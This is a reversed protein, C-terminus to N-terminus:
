PNKSEYLESMTDAHKEIFNYVDALTRIDMLGEESRLNIGTKKYIQVILEVVDLGDLGLDLFLNKEPLLENGNLEFTEVFIQNVRSILEEKTM